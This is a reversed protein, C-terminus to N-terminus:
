KHAINAKRVLSDPEYSPTKTLLNINFEKLYYTNMYVGTHLPLTVYEM